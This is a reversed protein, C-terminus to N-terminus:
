KSITTISWNAETLPPNGRRWERMFWQDYNVM